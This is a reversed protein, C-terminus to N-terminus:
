RLIVLKRTQTFGQGTASPGDSMMRYFYVGSALGTANFQVTHSGPAKNEDVLVAVERGLMDFVALKVRRSGPGPVQYGILTSPNFPNPYNQGLGFVSPVSEATSVDTARTGVAFALPYIAGDVEMKDNGAGTIGDTGLSVSWVQYM